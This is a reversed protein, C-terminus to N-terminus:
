RPAADVTRRIYDELNAAALERRADDVAETGNRHSDRVARAVRTRFHAPVAM